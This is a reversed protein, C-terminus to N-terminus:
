IFKVKSNKILKKIKEKSWDLKKFLYVEQADLKSPYNWKIEKYIINTLIKGEIIGKNKFCNISRIDGQPMDSAFIDKHILYTNFEKKKNLYCNLLGMEVANFWNPYDNYYFAIVPEYSLDKSIKKFFSQMTSKVTLKDYISIDINSIKKLVDFLGTRNESKLLKDFKEIKFKKKIETLKKKDGFRFKNKM